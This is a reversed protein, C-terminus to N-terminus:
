HVVVTGTMGAHHDCHFSYSGPAATITANAVDSSGIAGSIASTGGAFPTLADFHVNHGGGSTLGSWTVSGGSKLDISTPGFTNSTGYGNGTSMAVVDGTSPAIDVTEGVDPSTKTISNLTLTASITVAGVAGAKVVVTLGNVDVKSPDSITWTPVAGGLSMAHGNQDIPTLTLTTAPGYQYADPSSAVLDLTTFVGPTMSSGGSGGCATLAVASLIVFCARM